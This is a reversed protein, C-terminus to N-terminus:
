FGGKKHVPKRPKCAKGGGAQLGCARKRGRSRGAPTLSTLYKRIRLTAADIQDAPYFERAVKGTLPERWELKIPCAAHSKYYNKGDKKPSM